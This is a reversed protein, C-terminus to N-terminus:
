HLTRRNYPWRRMVKEVVEKGVRLSGFTQIDKQVVPSKWLDHFQQKFSEIDKPDNSRSQTFIKVYDKLCERKNTFGLITISITEPDFDITSYWLTELDLGFDQHIKKIINDLEWHKGQQVEIFITHENREGYRDRYFIFWRRLYEKSVKGRYLLYFLKTKAEIDDADIKGYRYKVHAVIDFVNESIWNM